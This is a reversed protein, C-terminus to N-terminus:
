CGFQRLHHDTHKYAMVGIQDREMKGFFPHVLVFDPYNAYERILAIWESKLSNMDGGAETVKFDPVTPVNRKLPADDKIFGKLVMKGFLRGLFAQKYKKKGLAMKEWRICHKLMQSVNMQGWNATCSENVCDIRAVLQDRTTEDLITKM